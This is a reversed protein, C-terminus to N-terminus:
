GDDRGQTRVLMGETAIQIGGLVVMQGPELGGTLYVVDDLRQLVRVPVITVLSDSRM